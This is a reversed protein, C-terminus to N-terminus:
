RWRRLRLLVAALTLLWASGVVFYVVHATDIVGKAFDGVRASASLALFLSEWRPGFFLAARQSGVELAVLAFLTSLFALTQSSTLTSFVVGVAIYLMGMLVIGLYGSVMPGPDPNSMGLLVAAFVLTPVLATVFFGVAALYKGAIVWVEAVPSTLLPEITGTRLEESLLRMSIAPAVVILLSWCTQFFERLSAPAGPNLTGYGFVLGSLFLFLAVVIWGLPVRFFSAYERAAIAWARSM